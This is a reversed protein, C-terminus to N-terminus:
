AGPHSALWREAASLDIGYKEGFGRIETAKMRGALAESLAYIMLSRMGSRCHALVKGKAAEVAAGFRRVDGETFSLGAVPIHAYALGAAKAAADEAATGPAGEEGDPRDNIIAGFGQGALTAFEALTPQGSIFLKDNIKIPNV